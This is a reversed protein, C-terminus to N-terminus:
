KNKGKASTPATKVSLSKAVKKSIEKALIDRHNQCPASDGNRCPGSTLNKIINSMDPKADSFDFWVSADFAIGTIQADVASVTTEATLNDRDTLTIPIYFTETATTVRLRGQIEYTPQQSEAFSLTVATVKASNKEAGLDVTTGTLLDVTTQIDQVDYPQLQMTKLQLQIKTMELQYVADTKDSIRVPVSTCNQSTSACSSYSALSFNLSHFTGIGPPPEPNGVEINCYCLFIGCAAILSKLFAHKM